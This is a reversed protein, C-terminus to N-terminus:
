PATSFPRLLAPGRCASVAPLIGASRFLLHRAERGLEDPGRLGPSLEASYPGSSSPFMALSRIAHARHGTNACAALVATAAKAESNTARSNRNGSAYQAGMVVSTIM